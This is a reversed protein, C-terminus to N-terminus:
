NKQAILDEDKMAVTDHLEDIQDEYFAKLTNLNKTYTENNENIYVTLETIYAQLAAINNNSAPLPKNPATSNM